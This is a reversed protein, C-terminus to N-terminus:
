SRQQCGERSLGRIMAWGDKQRCGSRCGVEIEAIRVKGMQDRGETVLEDLIRRKLCSIHDGHAQDVACLESRGEQAHCRM